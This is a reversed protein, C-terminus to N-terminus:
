EELSKQFLQTLREEAEKFELHRAAEIMLRIRGPELPPSNSSLYHILDSFTASAIEFPLSFTNDHSNHILHRIKKSKSILERPILHEEKELPFLVTIYEGSGFPNM